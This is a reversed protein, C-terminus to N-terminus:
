VDWKGRVEKGIRQIGRRRRSRMGIRVCLKVRTVLRSEIVNHLTVQQLIESVRESEKRGREKHQGFLM